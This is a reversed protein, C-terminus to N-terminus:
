GTVLIQDLEKGGNALYLTSFNLVLGVAARTAGTHNLKIRLVVGGSGNGFEGTVLVATAGKAKGVDFVGVLLGGDVGHLSGLWGTAHSLILHHLSPNGPM